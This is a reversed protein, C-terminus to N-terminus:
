GMVYPGLSFSQKVRVLWARLHLRGETSHHMSSDSEEVITFQLDPLATHDAHGALVEGIADVLM